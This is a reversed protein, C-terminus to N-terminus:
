ILHEANLPEDAISIVQKIHVQPIGAPSRHTAVRWIFAFYIFFPFLLFHLNRLLALCLVSISFQKEDDLYVIIKKFFLAFTIVIVSNIQSVGPYLVAHM